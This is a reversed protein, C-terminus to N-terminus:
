PVSQAHFSPSKVVGIKWFGNPIALWSLSVGHMAAMNKVKEFVEIDGEFSSTRPVEFSSESGDWDPNELYGDNLRAVLQDFMLEQRANFGAPNPHLMATFAFPVTTRHLCM